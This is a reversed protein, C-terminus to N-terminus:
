KKGLGSSEIFLSQLHSLIEIYSQKENLDDIKRQLYWELRSIFEETKTSEFWRMRENESTMLLLSSVDMLRTLIQISQNLNSFREEVLFARTTTSDLQRMARQLREELRNTKERFEEM